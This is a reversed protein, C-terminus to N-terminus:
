NRRSRLVRANLSPKFVVKEVISEVESEEQKLTDNEKEDESNREEDDQLESVYKQFNEPILYESITNLYTNVNLFNNDSFEKQLLAIKEERDKSKKVQKSIAFEPSHKFKNLKYITLRVDENAAKLLNLCKLYTGHHTALPNTKLWRNFSECSNTSKVRQQFKCLKTAHKENKFWNKDVYNIWKTLQNIEFPTFDENATMIMKNKIITWQQIMQGVPVHPLAIVMRFKKYFDASVLSRDDNGNFSTLLHKLGLQNLKKVLNQAYHFYCHKHLTPYHKEIIKIAAPEKDTMFVEPLEESIGFRQLCKKIENFVFDYDETKRHKMLAYFAPIFTNRMEGEKNEIIQFMVVYLQTYKDPAVFFTGDALRLKSKAYLELVDRSGFIVISDGDKGVVRFSMPLQKDDLYGCEYVEEAYDNNENKKENSRSSAVRLYRGKDKYQGLKIKSDATGLELGNCITDVNKIGIAHAIRPKILPNTADRCVRKYENDGIKEKFTIPLCGDFHVGEQRVLNYGKM